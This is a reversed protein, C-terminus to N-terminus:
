KEVYDGDLDVAKRWRSVLAHLGERSWSMEQDCLWTRVARIVNEDDEFRTGRLTGKLPGLLHFDSPV